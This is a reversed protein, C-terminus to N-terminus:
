ATVRKKYVHAAPPWRDKWPHAEELEYALAFLLEDRDRGAAFMSGLPLGEKSTELPISMAPTGAINQLPTYNMFAFMGTMLANFPQTPALQGLRTPPESVVPSLLVDYHEHFAALAQATSSMSAYARELDRATLQAGWAGLNLTYPELLDSLERGGAAARVSHVVDLGLYGWLVQIARMTDPGDVPWRVQEVRHGLRECLTATNRIAAAVEPDPAAGDLGAIVLAIRLRPLRPDRAPPPEQQPRAIAFSWAADRVSRSVLVDSCLVDDVLHTARARVNMGRSPKFGFVGCASAPIRISGAADSSHALPVMGCAVAATAGGSSGGASRDLAWPNRTPGYHLPETTGMLGFEPMSSKGVPILGARDYREIFPYMSTSHADSRSRSGARAPMGPFELSDKVLSPAGALASVPTARRARERAMDFARHSVAGISPDLADIRLIAAEILEEQSIEGTRVLAVQDHADRRGIALADDLTLTM